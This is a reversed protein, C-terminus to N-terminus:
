TVRQRSRHGTGETKKLPFSPISPLAMVLDLMPANAASNISAAVTECPFRRPADAPVNSFVIGRHSFEGPASLPFATGGGASFLPTIWGEGVPAGANLRLDGIGIGACSLFYDRWGSRWSSIRVYLGALWHPM